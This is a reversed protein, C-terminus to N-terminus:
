SKANLENQMISSKPIPNDQFSKMLHMLNGFSWISVKRALIKLIHDNIIVLVNIKNDEDNKIM